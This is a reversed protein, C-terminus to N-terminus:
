DLLRVVKQRCHADLVHGNLELALLHRRPLKMKM